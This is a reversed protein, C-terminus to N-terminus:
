CCHLFLAPTLISLKAKFTQSEERQTLPLSTGSCLHQKECYDDQCTATQQNFVLFDHGRAQGSKKLKDSAIENESGVNVKDQLITFLSM